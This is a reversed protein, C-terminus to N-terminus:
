VVGSYTDLNLKDQIWLCEGISWEIDSDEEDDIMSIM